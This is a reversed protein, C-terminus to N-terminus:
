LLNWGEVKLEAKSESTFTAIITRKEGALLSIFNDEWFVPLIIEGTEEEVLKLNILFAIKDSNNELEITFKQEGDLKEHISKVDLNVKPLKNLNRNSYPNESM